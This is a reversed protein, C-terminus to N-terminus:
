DGARRGSCPRRARRPPGTQALWAKFEPRLDDLFHRPMHHIHSAENISIAQLGSADFTPRRPGGGETSRRFRDPELKRPVAGQGNFYMPYFPPSSHFSYWGLGHLRRLEKEVSAYGFPLSSLHPVLVNQLEVDADLRVGELVNSVLTQDPYHQLRAHLYTLNLHSEIPEHFDQSWAARPAGFRATGCM